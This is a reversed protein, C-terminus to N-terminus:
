NLVTLPERNLSYVGISWRVPGLGWHGPPNCIIAETQWPASLVSRSCPKQECWRSLSCLICSTFLQPVWSKAGFWRRAPFPSVSLRHAFECPRRLEREFFPDEPSLVSVYAASYWLVENGMERWKSEGRKEQWVNKGTVPSLRPRCVKLSHLVFNHQFLNHPSSM